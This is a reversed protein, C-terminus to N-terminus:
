AKTGRASEARGRCSAHRLWWASGLSRPTEALQEIPYGRYRLIGKDGDIYTIASKCSATNMFAPDYTMLGFEEPRAKIQRLDMARTATDGEPGGEFIELAYTKATRSDKIDLTGKVQFDSSPAGAKPAPM